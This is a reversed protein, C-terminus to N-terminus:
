TKKKSAKACPRIPLLAQHWLLALFCATSIIESQGGKRLPCGAWNWTYLCNLPCPESTHELVVFRSSSPLVLPNAAAKYWRLSPFSGSCVLSDPERLKSLSPMLKHVKWTKQSESAATFCGLDRTSSIQWLVCSQAWSWFGSSNQDRPPKVRGFCRAKFSITRWLALTNQVMCTHCFLCLYYSRTSLMCIKGTDPLVSLIWPM